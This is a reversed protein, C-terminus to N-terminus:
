LPYGDAGLQIDGYNEPPEKDSRALWAKANDLFEKVAGTAPKKEAKIRNSWYDYDSKVAKEGMEDLTLGLNRNKPISMRFIPSNQDKKPDGDSRSFDEKEMEEYSVEGGGILNSVARNYARTHANARTNHRSDRRGKEDSNFSGDGTASRGNPAIARYTVDFDLTGDENKMEKESVVEVTLNFFSALKRWASKKPYQKQKIVQVDEATLVAAKLSQYQNWAQLAEDPTVSPVVIATKTVQAEIVEGEPTTLPTAEILKPQTM